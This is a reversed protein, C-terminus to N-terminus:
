GPLRSLDAISGFAARLEGLLALRNDRLSTDPDNVLVQDFFADVKPRLGALLELARAYDRAAVAAAVPAQLELLAAHLDREAPARL